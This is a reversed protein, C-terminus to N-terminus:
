AGGVGGVVIGGGAVVFGGVPEYPRSIFYPFYYYYNRNTNRM